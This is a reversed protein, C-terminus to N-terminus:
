PSREVDTLENQEGSVSVAETSTDMCVCWKTGDNSNLELQQIEILADAPSDSRSLNLSAPKVDEDWPPIHPETNAYLYGALLTQLQLSNLKFCTNQIDKAEQMTYKNMTLLTTAQIIHGLHCDAALELGQREAWAEIGTLRQRLAAGWYHSRLGPATAAPSMLRNFLWASIFHFLQSFLQITLAPNVRCRRLLSMTNMFTNLVMEIGAPLSGHQEPDILFTPLHKMLENQLCQLLCSYARHVLHALDLQSQQTLPCLDKDHKIFNLLESSNAMWFALAGAITQQRKRTMAVMKGTISTVAHTQGSRPSGQRHQRRLTFRGVAYLIYAPSLKFHVTSSNTYNIVASLFAEETVTKVSNLGSHYDLSIQLQRQQKQNESGHNAEQNNLLKETSGKEDGPVKDAAKAKNKETKKDKRSLTRKFNQIIGGKEKEPSMEQSTEKDKKLVFRGERNDSSWNLQVILPKEDPELKREKKAQIEYLSYSSNLMKMDPRFKESLTEIVQRTSSNSCVRLCKTAVNGEEHNEHYFRMVGHFEVNEDPQSIEFLDLRNNNWQRIVRALKEREEEEPM